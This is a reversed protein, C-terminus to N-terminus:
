QGWLTVEICPSVVHTSDQKMTSEQNVAVCLSSAHAWRSTSAFVPGLLIVIGVKM